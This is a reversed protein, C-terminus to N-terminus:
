MMAWQFHKEGFTKMMVDSIKQAAGTEAVLKGLMAGLCIIIVLSSLTDGIGKQISQVLQQPGMGLLLGTLLSVVLFAIFANFKGVTIVGVLCFICGMLIILYM